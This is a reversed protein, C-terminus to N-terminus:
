VVSKRDSVNAKINEKTFRCNFWDGEYLIKRVVYDGNYEPFNTSVFKVEEGVAFLPRSNNENQM